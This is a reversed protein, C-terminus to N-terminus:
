DGVFVNRLRNYNNRIYTPHFRKNNLYYKELTFSNDVEKLHHPQSFSTQGNSVVTKRRTYTLYDGQIDLYKTKVKKTTGFPISITLKAVKYDGKYIHETKSIDFRVSTDSFYREMSLMAGSDGYLFDGATVKINSNLNSIYYQYSYLEEDRNEVYYRDMKKYMDDKLRSGKFTLSHKGDLTSIGTEFSAGTLKRDFQGVQLLSVWRYPLDLQFYQSLLVQDIEAKTKNRNRYDFIEGDEFNDSISLPINYRTSLITGKALRMSLEAQMALTYDLSSYESGDILIFDPKLTLTPKFRDSHSKVSTDAIEINSFQLLNSKYVGSSLFEKYEKTNVKTTFQRINSKKTTVVINKAKDSMALTGLVMGLADIDNYTYLTNEYEFYLTDNDEHYSINSFGYNKLDSISSPIDRSDLELHKSKDDFPLNAYIGFYVDNYDVSSKAMLGLNIKKKGIKALYQAKIAANWDHTDYEGSVNLWDFPQYEVSGFTGNLSGANSGTAYGASARINKFKKSLVAYKSSLHSAGGGIDQIGVAVQLLDKPIFPIQYKLSIIRDELFTKDNLKDTANAYRINLDLNPLVGMNLFYNEQEKNDRYDTASSPTFDDVQNTYLFEFEGEKYVNANPTNVVGKFGQFSPLSEVQTAFLTTSLCLSLYIKM